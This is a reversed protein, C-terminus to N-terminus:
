PLVEARAKRDRLLTGEMKQELMQRGRKLTMAGVIMDWARDLTSWYLHSLLGVAIGNAWAAHVQKAYGLLESVPLESLIQVARTITFHKPLTPSNAELNPGDFPSSSRNLTTTIHRIPLLSCLLETANHNYIFRHMVPFAKPCPIRLSVVPIDRMGTTSAAQTASTSPLAPLSVCQLVYALAHIPLLMGNGPTPGPTGCRGEVPMSSHLAFIHTPTLGQEEAQPDLSEVDFTLCDPLASAANETTHDLKSKAMQRAVEQGHKVLLRSTQELLAPPGGTAATMYGHLVYNAPVGAEAFAQAEAFLGHRRLHGTLDKYPDSLIVIDPQPLKIPLNPQRPVSATSVRQRKKGGAELQHSNRSYCPSPSDSQRRQQKQQKGMREIRHFATADELQDISPFAASPGGSAGQRGSGAPAQIPLTLASTTKAQRPFRRRQSSLNSPGADSAAMEFASVDSSPGSDVELSMAMQM